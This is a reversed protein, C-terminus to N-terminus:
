RPAPQRNPAFQGEQRTTKSNASVVCRGCSPLGHHERTGHEEASAQCNGCIRDVDATVSIGRLSAVERHRACTCTRGLAATVTRGM